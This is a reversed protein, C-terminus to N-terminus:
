EKLWWIVVLLNATGQVQHEAPLSCLSQKLHLVFGTDTATHRVEREATVRWHYCNLADYGFLKQLCERTRWVCQGLSGMFSIQIRGFM